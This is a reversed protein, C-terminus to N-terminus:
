LMNSFENGDHKAPNMLDLFFLTSTMQMYPILWLFGIFCTFLCLIMLPLFSMQIYFLRGKHGKMVRISMKLTEAATLSPYDLILYFSQSLALSVPVYIVMGVAMSLLAAMMWNISLTRLYFTSFIQSPTLCVFSVLALVSAIALCKNTQERFGYFLNNLSFPQGCAANLFFLATGANFVGLIASAALTVALNIFFGAATSPIAMSIINSVAFTIVHVLFIVLIAAGYKGTLKDKALNKLEPSSKYQNM